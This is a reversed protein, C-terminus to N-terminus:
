KQNHDGSPQVHPVGVFAETSAVIVSIFIALLANFSTNGEQPKPTLPQTIPGGSLLHRNSVTNGLVSKM